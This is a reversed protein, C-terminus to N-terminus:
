PVYHQYQLNARAYLADGVPSLELNVRQFKGVTPSIISDRNDRQWGITLPFASSSQGFQKGYLLYSNPLGSSTSLRTNEYGIGFFVTDLESFPVGFRVSAGHTVLEYVEGLSNAPRQTRYFVDLARSVGDVTFY